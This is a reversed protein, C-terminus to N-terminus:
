EPGTPGTVVYVQVTGNATDILYLNGQEDVMVAGALGVTTYDGFSYQYQGTSNFVIVRYADPDTVYVMGNSDVTLYPRENTQAYWADIPWQRVFTGDTSFV